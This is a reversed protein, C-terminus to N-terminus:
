APVLGAEPLPQLVSPTMGNPLVLGTPTSEGSGSGGGGGQGAPLVFSSNSSSSASSDISHRETGTFPNRSRGSGSEQSPALTHNRVRSHRRLNSMVAFGRGCVGCVFPKEKTHTLIHTALASPRAFRQDCENCAYRRSAADKPPRRKKGTGATAGAAASVTPPASHSGYVSRETERAKGKMADGTVPKPLYGFPSPASFATSGPSHGTTGPLAPHYPAPSAANLDTAARQQSLSSSSSSPGPIAGADTAPHLRAPASLPTGYPPTPYAPYTSSPPPPPYAYPDSSEVTLMPPPPPPVLAGTSHAQPQYLDGIRASSPQQEPPASADLSSFASQQSYPAPPFPPPPPYATYAPYPPFQQPYASSYGASQHQQHQWAAEPYYPRHQQQQPLAHQAPLGQHQRYPSDLQQSAEHHNVDPGVESAYPRYANVASSPAEYAAHQAYAPEPPAYYSGAPAPLGSGPPGAGGLPATTFLDSSHPTSPQSPPQSPPLLHPMGRAYGGHQSQAPYAGSAHALPALATAADFEPQM